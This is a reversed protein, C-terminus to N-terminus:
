KRTSSISTWRAKLYHNIAQRMELFNTDSQSHLQLHTRLPEPARAVLIARKITDPVNDLSSIDDHDKIMLNFEEFKSEMNDINGFNDNMVKTLLTTEGHADRSGYRLVLSRCAEYGNQDPVVRVTKKPGETTLLALINHLTFAREGRSEDTPIRKVRPHSAIAQLEKLLMADMTGVFCTFAFDWDSFEDKAGNFVTPKTLRAVENAMAVTKVAGSGSQSKLTENDTSLRQVTDM